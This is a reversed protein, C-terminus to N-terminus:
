RPNKKPLKILSMKYAWFLHIVVENVVTRREVLHEVISSVFDQM